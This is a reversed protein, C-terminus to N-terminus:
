HLRTIAESLFLLSLWGCDHNRAAANPRVLNGPLLRHAIFVANEKRKKKKKNQTKHGLQGQWHFLHVPRVKM